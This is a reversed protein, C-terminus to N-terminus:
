KKCVAMKVPLLEYFLLPEFSNKLFIEINKVNLGLFCFVAGLFGMRKHYELCIFLLTELLSNVILVEPM